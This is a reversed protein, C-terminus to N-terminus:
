MCVAPISDASSGQLCGGTPVDDGSEEKEEKKNKKVEQKKKGAAAYLVFPPTIIVPDLHQLDAPALIYSSLLLSCCVFRAAFM